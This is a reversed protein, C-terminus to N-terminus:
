KIYSKILALGDAVFINMPIIKDEDWVMSHVVGMIAHSALEVDKELTSLTKDPFHKHIDQSIILAMRRRSNMIAKYRLLLIETLFYRRIVKRDVVFIEYLERLFTKFYVDLSENKVRKTCETLRHIHKEIRSEVIVSLISVKNTFYQYLSGVSVGAQEAIRNTNIDEYSEKELLKETAMVISNYVESSRRQQPLRRVDLKKDWSYFM